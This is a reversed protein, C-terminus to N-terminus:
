PLCVQSQFGPLFFFFFFFHPKISGDFSCYSSPRGSHRFLTTCLTCSWANHLSKVSGRWPPVLTGAWRRTRGVVHAEVPPATKRTTGPSDPPILCRDAVQCHPFLPICAAPFVSVEGLSRSRGSSVKVPSPPPPPFDSLIREAM